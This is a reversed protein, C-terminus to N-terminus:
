EDEDDFFSAALRNHFEHDVYFEEETEQKQKVSPLSHASFSLYEHPSQILRFLLAGLVEKTEPLALWSKENDTLSSPLHITVPEINEQKTRFSHIVLQAITKGLVGKEKCENLWQIVENPTDIPLRFSLVQGKAIPKTM